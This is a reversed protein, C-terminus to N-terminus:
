HIWILTQEPDSWQFNDDFLYLISSYMYVQKLNLPGLINNLYTFHVTYMYITYIHLLSLLSSCEPPKLLMFLFLHVIVYQLLNSIFNTLLIHLLLKPLMYFSRKAPGPDLDSGIAWKLFTLVVFFIALNFLILSFIFTLM